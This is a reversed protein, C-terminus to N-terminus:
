TGMCLTSVSQLTLSRHMYISVNGVRVYLACITGKTLQAFQARNRLFPSAPFSPALALALLVGRDFTQAHALFQAPIAPIADNSEFFGAHPQSSPLM